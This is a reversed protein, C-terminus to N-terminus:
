RKSTVGDLGAVGRVVRREGSVPLRLGALWDMVAAHTEPLEAGDVRGVGYAFFSLRRHATIRPIWAPASQRGGCQAPQRLDERRKSAHPQRELREFDRRLM